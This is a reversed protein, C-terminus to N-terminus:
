YTDEVTCQFVTKSPQRAYVIGVYSFYIILKKLALIEFLVIFVIHDEAAGLFLDICSGFSLM